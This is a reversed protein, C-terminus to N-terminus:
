PTEGPIPDYVFPKRFTHEGDTETTYPPPGAQVEQNAVLAQRETDPMWGPTGPPPPWPLDAPAYPPQTAVTTDVVTPTSQLTPPENTSLASSAAVAGVIVVAAAALGIISPREHREM